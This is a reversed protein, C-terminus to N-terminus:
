RREGCAPGARAAVPGARGARLRSAAVQLATQASPPPEGHWLQGALRSGSVPQGHAAVLLALLTRERPRPVSRGAVTLPGFARIEAVAAGNAVADDNVATGDVATGDVAADNV